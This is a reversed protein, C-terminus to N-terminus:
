DRAASFGEREYAKKYKKKKVLAAQNLGRRCKGVIYNDVLMSQYHLWTTKTWGVAWCGHAERTEERPAEYRCQIKDTSKTFLNYYFFHGTWSSSINM